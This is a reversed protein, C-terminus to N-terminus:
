CRRRPASAAQYCLARASSLRATVQECGSTHAGLLHAAVQMGEATLPMILEGGERLTLQEEKLGTLLASIARSQASEASCM